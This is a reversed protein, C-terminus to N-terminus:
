PRFLSLEAKITLPMDIWTTQDARKTPRGTHQLVSALGITQIEHNRSGTRWDWYSAFVILGVAYLSSPFSSLNVFVVVRDNSCFFFRSRQCLRSNEPGQPHTQHSHRVSPRSFVEKKSFQLSYVRLCFRYRIVHGDTPHFVTIVVLTVVFAFGTRWNERTRLYAKRDILLPYAMAIISWRYGLLMNAEVNALSPLVFCYKAKQLRQVLNSQRSGDHIYAFSFSVKLCGGWNRAGMDSSIITSWINCRSKSSCSNVDTAMVEIYGPCDWTQSYM